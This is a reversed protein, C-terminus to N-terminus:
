FTKNCQDWFDVDYFKIFIHIKVISMMKHTIIYETFTLCAQILGIFILHGFQVKQQLLSAHKASFLM